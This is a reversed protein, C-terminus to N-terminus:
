HARSSGSPAVSHEVAGAYAAAEDATAIASGNPQVLDFRRGGTRSSVEALNALFLTKWGVDPGPDFPAQRRLCDIFASVEAAYAAAYRAYFDPHRDSPRTMPFTAEDVQRGRDEGVGSWLRATIAGFDGVFEGVDIRGHTGILKFGNDYGASNIRSGWLHAVAGDTWTCFTHVVNAGEGARDDYHPALFRLAQVSCPLEFGHVSLAEFVLHIAMDATLGGSQYGAPTPNKDQLVHHSQQVAGIRGSSIWNLAAAAAADFHRQFGVQAVHNPHKGLRGCFDAAEAISDAFPKEVLVPTGREIFSLSDRAHDQTRSAVVVGDLRAGTAMADPDHFRAIGALDPGGLDDLLRSASSLSPGFRDGMAVLEIEGSRHLAILHELHVQGMRGVGFAGLKLRNGTM